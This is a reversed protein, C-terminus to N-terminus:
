CWARWHVHTGRRARPLSLPRTIGRVQWWRYISRRGERKRFFCAAPRRMGPIVPRWTSHAATLDIYEWGMEPFPEDVRRGPPSPWQMRPLQRVLDAIAVINASTGLSSLQEKPALAVQLPDGRQGEHCVGLESETLWQALVRHGTAFGVGSGDVFLCPRAAAVYGEPVASIEGRELAVDIAALAQEESPATPSPFADQVRDALDARRIAAPRGAVV